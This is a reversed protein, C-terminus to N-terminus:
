GADSSRPRAGPAAVAPGPLESGRGRDPVRVPRGPLGTARDAIQVTTIMWFFLFDWHSELHLNSAVTNFFIVAIWTGVFTYRGAAFPTRRYLLLPIVIFLTVSYGWGFIGGEAASELFVNHVTFDDPGGFESSRGAAADWGVGVLPHAGIMGLGAELTSLRTSQESLDQLRQDWLDAYSRLVNGNLVWVAFLALTSAAVIVGARAMRLVRGQAIGTLRKAKGLGWFILIVVAAPLNARNISFYLNALSVGAMVYLLLKLRRSTVLEVGILSAGLAVMASYGVHWPGLFVGHIRQATEDVRSGMEPANVVTLSSLLDAVQLAGLYALIVALAFSPTRRGSTLLPGLTLLLFLCRANLTTEDGSAWYQGSIGHYLWVALFLVFLAGFSRGFMAIPIKRASIVFPLLGVACLGYLGYRVLKEDNLWGVYEALSPYTKLLFWFIM